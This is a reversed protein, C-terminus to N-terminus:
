LMSLHMLGQEVSTTVQTSCNPTGRGYPFLHPFAAGYYHDDSESLYMNSNIVRLHKMSDNGTNTYEFLTKPEEIKSQSLYFLGSSSEVTSSFDNNGCNVRDTDTYAQQILSGDPSKSLMRQCNKM